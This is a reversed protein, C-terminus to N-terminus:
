EEETGGPQPFFQSAGWLVQYEQSPRRGVSSSETSTSETEQLAGHHVLADLVAKINKAKVGKNRLSLTLESKRFNDRQMEIIAGVVLDLHSNNLKLYSWRKFANPEVSGGDVGITRSVAFEPIPLFVKGLKLRRNSDFLPERSSLPAPLEFPNGQWCVTPMQNQLYDPRQDMLSKPNVVAREVVNRTIRAFNVPRDHHFDIRDFDLDIKIPENM